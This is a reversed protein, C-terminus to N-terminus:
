ETRLSDVPNAWAVKIIQLFISVFATLTAILCALIIAPVGSEIRYAYGGLWKSMIYWAAPGAIIISIVVNEFFEKSLLLTVDFISSGLVKRIGIEKKRQETSFSTLGFLGLCSIFIALLSFYSFITGTKRDNVYFDDITEKLFSYLFPYNPVHKEWMKELFAITEPINDPKIKVSNSGLVNGLYFVMPEISNHLSNQHFNKIVGIIVGTRETEDRPKYRVKTGIPNKLGMVEAATENVVYNNYDSTYEKSFFRGEKMTMSFTELYSFDVDVPYLTVKQNKGEWQVSTNGFLELNPPKARSINIINPYELLEKRIVDFNNIPGRFYSYTNIINSNDYGLPKNRIFDLQNYVVITGSIFIVSLAFQAVVLIKRLYIGTLGNKFGFNKLANVPQLKSLFFAPYSGSIVGTVIAIGICLAFLILNASFDFTLHKNTLSNFTPLIIVVSILALILAFLSLFVSEGLFQSLLHKKQAGIVKRLGVEKARRNLRATSLNMFNICAILLICLATICYIYIYKIDGQKFNDFDGALKSKLHINKLPQLYVEVIATKEHDKIISSIKNNVDETISGKQLQIYTYYMTIKWNKLDADWWVTNDFPIIYDFQLHSTEPIDKIVGTVTFPIKPGPIINIIKGMPDENGFYKRGMSETIVICYRNEFCSGLDGSILEFSFMEFFAKDAVAMIDNTNTKGNCELLRGEFGQYRTYNVIEPYQDVLAAGIANPTRANHIIENSTPIKSIVRYLENTNKHFRDFSLEDQIWLLMLICCAIGVSLGSINIFSFVKQRKINRLTIKMYNKFMIFRWYAHLKLYGCISRIVNKWYWLKAKHIGSNELMKVYTYESDEVISHRENYRFLYKLLQKALFPPKKNSYIKM